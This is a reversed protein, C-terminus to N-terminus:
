VVSKRDGKVSYAIDAVWMISDEITAILPFLSRRMLRWRSWFRKEGMLSSAKKKKLTLWNNNCLLNVNIQDIHTFYWLIYSTFSEVSCTCGHTM